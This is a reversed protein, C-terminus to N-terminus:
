NVKSPFIVPKDPEIMDLSDHDFGVMSYDINVKGLNRIRILAEAVEDFPKFQLM